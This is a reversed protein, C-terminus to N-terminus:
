SQHEQYLWQKGIICGEPGFKHSIERNRQTRIIWRKNKRSAKIKKLSFFELEKTIRAPMGM